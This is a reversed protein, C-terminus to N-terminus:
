RRCHEAAGSGGMAPARPFPLSAIRVESAVVLIKKAGGGIEGEFVSRLVVLARCARARSTWAICLLSAVEMM